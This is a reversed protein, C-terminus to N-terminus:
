RAFYMEMWRIWCSVLRGLDEYHCAAVCSYAELEGFEEVLLVAFDVDCAAGGRFGGLGDM